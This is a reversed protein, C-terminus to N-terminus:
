FLHVYGPQWDGWESGVSGSVSGRLTMVALQLDLNEDLGQQKRSSSTLSLSEDAGDGPQWMAQMRNSLDALADAEHPVTMYSNLVLPGHGNHVYAQM